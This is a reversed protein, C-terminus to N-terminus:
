YGGLLNNQTELAGAALVPRVHGELAALMELETTVLLGLTGSKDELRGDPYGGSRRRRCGPPPALIQQPPLMNSLSRM